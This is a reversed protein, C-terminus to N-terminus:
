SFGLSKMQPRRKDHDDEERAKLKQLRSTEAKEDFVVTDLQDRLYAIHQDQRGRELDPLAPVKHALQRYREFNILQANEVEVTKPYKELCKQIDDLHAVLWPIHPTDKATDPRTIKRYGHYNEDSDILDALRKMSAQTSRKLAEMTRPIKSLKSKWDLISAAIIAASNYNHLRLCEEATELFYKIATAREKIEDRHLISHKIWRTMKENMSFLVDMLSSSGSAHSLYDIWRVSTRVDAEMLTLAVATDYPHNPKAAEGYSRPIPSRSISDAAKFITEQHKSIFNNETATAFNRVVNLLESEPPVSRLCIRIAQVIRHRKLFRAEATEQSVERLKRKLVDFLEEPTTYDIYIELLVPEFQKEDTALFYDVLGALNGSAILGKSKNCISLLPERPTSDNPSSPDDSTVLTRVRPSLDDFDDDLGTRTFIPPLQLLQIQPRDVRRLHGSSASAAPLTSPGSIVKLAEGVPRSDFLTETKFHSKFEMLITTLHRQLEDFDREQRAMNENFQLAHSVLFQTDMARYTDDIRQNQSEIWARMDGQKAFALLPNLSRRPKLKEQIGVLIGRTSDVIRAVDCAELSVPLESLGLLLTRCRDNLKDLQERNEPVGQILDKLELSLTLVIDASITM